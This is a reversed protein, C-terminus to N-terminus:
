RREHRYTPREPLPHSKNFYSHKAAQYWRAIQGPMNSIGREFDDANVGVKRRLNYVTDNGLIGANILWSAPGDDGYQDEWAKAPSTNPNTDWRKGGAMLIPREEPKGKEPVPFEVGPPVGPGMAAIKAKLLTNNLQKTELDLANSATQQASAVAAVKESPPRYAAVSRSLDQGMSQLATGVGSEANAGVSVPSFNMGPAGLAYVPHVGAREADQTRWLVSNQAFERQMNMNLRAQEANQANADKQADRQLFGGLLSAGASILPGIM